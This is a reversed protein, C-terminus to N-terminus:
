IKRSERKEAGIDVTIGVTLLPSKTQPRQSVPPAGDGVSPAITRRQQRDAVLDICSASVRPPRNGIHVAHYIAKNGPNTSM